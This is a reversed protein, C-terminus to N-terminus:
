MSVIAPISRRYASTSPSCALPTKATSTKPITREFPSTIMFHTGDGAPSFDHSGDRNARSSVITHNWSSTM